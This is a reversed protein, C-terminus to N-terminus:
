HRIVMFSCIGGSPRTTLSLQGPRKLLEFLKEHEASGTTLARSVELDLHPLWGKWEEGDKAVAVFKGGKM